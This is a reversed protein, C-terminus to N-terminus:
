NEKVKTYIIKDGDLAVEFKTGKEIELQDRIISPISVYLSNTLKLASVMRKLTIKM